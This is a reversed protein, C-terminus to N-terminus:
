FRRGPMRFDTPIKDKLDEVEAGEVFQRLLDIFLALDGKEAEATQQHYEKLRELWDEKHEGATTLIAATNQILLNLLEDIGTGGPPQSAVQIVAGVEEQSLEAPTLAARFAEEGM